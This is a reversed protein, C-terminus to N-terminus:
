FPIPEGEEGYNGGPITPLRSFDAGDNIEGHGTQTDESPMPLNSHDLDVEGPSNRVKKVIGCAIPMAEHPGLRGKGIVTEPLPQDNKIGFIVVVKGIAMLTKQNGLKAIDDTPNIDKELLDDLMKEYSAAQSYSYNGFEDALPYTGGGMRQSNLDEDLPILVNGYVKAGEEADIFGDKNLDDSLTPCRHGVYIGQSHLISSPGSVFRVHAVFEDMERMLTLSGTIKGSVTENLPSLIAQYIGYMDTELTDVSKTHSSGKSSGGGSGGCSTLAFSCVLVPFFKKM